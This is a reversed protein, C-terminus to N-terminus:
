FYMKELLVVFIILLKKLHFHRSTLKMGYDYALEQAKLFNNVFVSLDPSKAIPSSDKYRLSRGCEKLPELYIRDVGLSHFYEIIELQKDVSYATITPRVFFPAKENILFEINKEVHSSSPKNGKLPRQLNQIKPPGDCSIQSDNINKLIWEGIKSSFIGNSWMLYKVKGLISNAYIVTKKLLDFKLTPEGGTFIIYTTKNSEKHNKIFDISKKIVEFNLNLSFEGGRAFCYPCESNCESTMSFFLTRFPHKKPFILNFTKIKNIDKKNIIFIRSQGSCFIIKYDGMSKVITLPQPLRLNEVKVDQIDLLNNLYVSKIMCNNKM